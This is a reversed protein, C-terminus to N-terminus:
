IWDEDDDEIENQTDFDDEDLDWDIEDIWSMKMRLMINEILIWEDKNIQRAHKVSLISNIRQEVKRKYIKYEIEAEMWIINMQSMGFLLLVLLLLILIVIYRQKGCNDIFKELLNKETLFMLLIYNMEFILKRREVKTKNNREM